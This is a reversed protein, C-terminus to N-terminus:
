VTLTWTNIYGTDTSYVDQAKLRWTGNAAESSVNVTYTTNVNDASDSSSTAKLNYTTGDPAVLDVRLDGRYTHVINVAVTSTSSANRACSLTINSYVAAGADPISVDTANTGTCSAPPTSTSTTPSPSVTTSPSPSTTTTTCTPDATQAPVSVADWAAKTKNFLGCTTDLAKAATLTWTRYKLYSSSSTKMLMANYMIKTATQIGVGTLAGTGSCRTSAPQGNTPNTGEALLYFWHNGPGAAAHVEQTPTSSSYCNDDGALSPNYMYRIPGSGVLNVEEGVQYDPPDNPNNAFAETAAGFVDGVFEQTGNGSIGGPTNDDIGHGVEHGVVDPSAIWQGASNKGIQIQTGDYYANTDNLGVRIPWAGGSSTFGTRGLWSSLMGKEKQASYFADVCGTEKATGTGNGWVNDTGSFVTNTSSDQCSLTTISPDRLSYTSGSLTTDLSVSGTIWGTGTGAVDMVHEYTRLVSGTAADVDVTLRSVGEDGTGNITSEWALTPDGTTTVVVLKTSEVNKVTKLESKAIKLSDAATLKPTIALEGIPSSQAVSTYKTNGAHDTVVVFDGGIVNLGKYTREYPVYQLKDTSIVPRQVYAEGDSAQLTAPQAAVLDAASDAATEAAASPSVPQATAPSTVWVMASAAATAATVAIVVPTRSKM